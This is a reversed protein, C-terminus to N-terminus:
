YRFFRARTVELHWIRKNEPDFEHLGEEDAVLTNGNSLRQAQAPNKLGQKSWVINGNSDYEDVRNLRMETVLINGNDLFEATHARDLGKVLETVNGQQDVEVVTGANQLNIVTHGSPLRQATTPRGEIRFDWVIRGDYAVEVVRDSDSCAILVNGNELGEVSTPRGPLNARRWTEQGREDYEFVARQEADVVLRRGDPMAHCGWVYKFGEVSFVEAKTDTVEKMLKSAWVCVLTRGVEIPKRPFPYTLRATQGHEQYWNRWAAVAQARPKETGPPSFNFRQGTVARLVTVSRHRHGVDPSELLDILVPLSERRGLDALGEAAALRLAPEKHGLLPLLEPLAEEGLATGLALVAAEKRPSPAAAIEQRLLDGDRREATAQLAREAFQFLYPERIQPMVKLLVPALGKLRRHEVFTFAAVLRAKYGQESAKALIRRVRARVEADGSSAAEELQPIPPVPLNLLATMASQRTQYNSSGLDALLAANRAELDASPILSEFYSRVGETTPEVKLRRLKSAFIDEASSTAIPGFLVAMALLGFLNRKM